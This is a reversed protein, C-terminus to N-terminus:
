PESRRRRRLDSVIRRVSGNVQPPGLPRLGDPSAQLEVECHERRGGFAFSDRHCSASRASCTRAETASCRVSSSPRQRTRSAKSGFCCSAPTSWGKASSSSALVKDATVLLAGRENAQGLVADDVATPSLEAVYLVDHGDARLRQVIPGDVDEDAVLNV